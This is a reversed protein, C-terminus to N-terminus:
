LWLKWACLVFLLTGALLTFCGCRAETRSPKATMRAAFWWLGGFAAVALGLLLGLGALLDGWTTM